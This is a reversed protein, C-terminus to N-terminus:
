GEELVPVGKHLPRLDTGCFPCFNIRVGPFQSHNKYTVGYYATKRSGPPALGYAHVFGSTLYENTATQEHLKTCLTGTQVQCKARPNNPDAEYKSLAEKGKATLKLPRSLRTRLSRADNEEVFHQIVVASAKTRYQTEIAFNGTDRVASLARAMSHTIM